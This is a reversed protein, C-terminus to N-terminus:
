PRNEPLSSGALAPPPREGSREEPPVFAYGLVRLVDAEEPTPVAIAYEALDATYPAPLRWLRGDRFFFGRPLWGGQSRKLVLQQNFEAPGTRILLLCGWTRPECSFLDLAVGRYTLRKYRPGIAQRGNKDLRPAFTGEALLERCREALLDVAVRVQGFLDAPRQEYRPICVVELDGVDPKRRRISGAVELRETATELLRVVEAALVEAEALPM